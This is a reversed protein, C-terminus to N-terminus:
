ALALRAHQEFETRRRRLLDVTADSSPLVVCDGTRALLELLDDGYADSGEPGVITRRAVCWRSAFALARRGTDVCGVSVGMRGLSRVAVLSQRLSADLVLADVVPPALGSPPAVGRFPLM